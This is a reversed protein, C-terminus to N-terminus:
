KGVVKRESANMLSRREHRYNGGNLGNMFHMLKYNNMCIFLLKSNLSFM